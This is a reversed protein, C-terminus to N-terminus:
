GNHAKVKKELIRYSDKFDLIRGNDIISHIGEMPAMMIGSANHRIVFLGSRGKKEAVVWNTNLAKNTYQGFLCGLNFSVEKKSPKSGRADGMWNRLVTTLMEPHIDTLNNTDLYRRLFSKGSVVGLHIRNRENVNLGRMPVPNTADRYWGLWRRLLFYENFPRDDTIRVEPDGHPLENMTFEVALIRSVLDRLNMRRDIGVASQTLDARATEPLRSIFEDATPTKLTMGSAIVHFGSGLFGQFIRIHPFSKRISTIVAQLMKPEGGPYWQQFIGDETLRSKVLTYFDESYLLSSGAAETPWPPDVTIIDFRDSTRKLFRRGDDIVIHANPHKIVGDADDYFYRFSGIVSPVLEVGTTRVGWSLLSRFTVGMGFCITLSSEPRRELIGMPLHAMTKAIINKSGQFMGNVLLEMDRGLNRAVVTATHDRLIVSNSGAIQDEFSNTVFVSFVLMLGAIAAMPISWAKRLYPAKIVMAFFVLFPMGMVAMCLTSRLTPLLLYSAVLPGIICGLVNLAYAYGASRPSGQSYEDILKPTLYGLLGCFPAISALIRLGSPNLRPDNIIAPIFVAVSLYGLLKSTSLVGHRKLDRRYFYSGMATSLLYTFVLSAFSYVQTKLAPTYARFWIVELAMSTFGTMFLVTCVTRGKAPVETLKHSPTVIESPLQDSMFVTGSDGDPASGLPCRLGLLSAAAAVSFNAFMAAMLTHRFGLLEILVLATVVTGTMAGLVNALYLFGFSEKQAINNERIFAMMAPFTTGMFFCCPLTILAIALASFFIYKVSSMEGVILTFDAGQHFLFPVSFAGIGILFESLAYFYIASIRTKRTLSVIWKGGAWSGIALGFMFVSIIISMVSTLIGFSAFALRIWVVQYLLSCFGSLFFFCFILNHQRTKMSSSHTKIAVADATDAPLQQQTSNSNSRLMAAKTMLVM